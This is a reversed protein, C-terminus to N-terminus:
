GLLAQQLVFFFTVLLFFVLQLKGPRLVAFLPLQCVFHLSNVHPITLGVSKEGM